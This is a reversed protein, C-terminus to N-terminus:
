TENTQFLSTFPICKFVWYCFFSKITCKCNLIQHTIPSIGLNRKSTYSCFLNNNRGIINQLLTTISFSLFLVQHNAKMHFKLEYSYIIFSWYESKGSILMSNYHFIQWYYINRRDHPQEQTLIKFTISKM